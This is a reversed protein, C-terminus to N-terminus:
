KRWSFGELLDLHCISWLIMCATQSWGAQSVGPESGSFRRQSFHKIMALGSPKNWTKSPLPAMALM